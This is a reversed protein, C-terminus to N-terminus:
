KYGKYKKGRLKWTRECVRSQFDIILQIKGVDGCWITHSIIIKSGNVPHDFKLLQRLMENRPWEWEQEEIAAM